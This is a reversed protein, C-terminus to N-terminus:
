PYLEAFHDLPLQKFLIFGSKLKRGSIFSGYFLIFLRLCLWNEVVSLSFSWSECFGEAEEKRWTLLSTSVILLFFLFHTVWPDQRGWVRSWRQGLRLTWQRFACADWESITSSEGGDKRKLHWNYVCSSVCM